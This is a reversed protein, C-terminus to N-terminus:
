IIFGYVPSFHVELAGALHKAGEEGFDNCM